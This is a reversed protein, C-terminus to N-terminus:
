NKLVTPDTWVDNHFRGGEGFDRAAAANIAALMATAKAARDAGAIESLDVIDLQARYFILSAAKNYNISGWAAHAGGNILARGSIISHDAPKIGAWGSSAVAAVGPVELTRHTQSMILPVGSQPNADQMIFLRNASTSSSNGIHAISQPANNPAGLARTHMLWVTFLVAYNAGAGTNATLWEAFARSYLLTLASQANQAGAQTSAVHLGGRETIEAAAFGNGMSNRVTFDCDAANLGTIAAMRDAMLNPVIAADAPVGVLPSEGFDILGVTSDWVADYPQDKGWPSSLATGPLYLNSM